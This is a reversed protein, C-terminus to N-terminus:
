RNEAEQQHRKQEDSGEYDKQRRECLQDYRQCIVDVTDAKTVPVCIDNFIFFVDETQAQEIATKTVASIHMGASAINLERM